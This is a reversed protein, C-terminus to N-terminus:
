AEAGGEDELSAEFKKIAADVESEDHPMGGNRYQMMREITFVLSALTAVSMAIFFVLRFPWEYLMISTFHTGKEIANWVMEYAQWALLGIIVTSTPLSIADIIMQGVRNFRSTLVDVWICQKALITVAIAPTLVIMGMRTLEYSGTIPSDFLYRLIVNAFTLLLLFLLGCVSIINFVSIIKRLVKLVANM